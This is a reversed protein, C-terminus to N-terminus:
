LKIDEFDDLLKFQQLDGLGAAVVLSEEDDAPVPVRKGRVGTKKVTKAPLGKGADGALIEPGFDIGTRDM